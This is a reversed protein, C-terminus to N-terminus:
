YIIIILLGGCFLSLIYMLLIIVMHSLGVSLIMRLPSGSFSKDSFSFFVSLCVFLCLYGSEGRNSSMMSSIQAEAFLCYLSIFLMWMSLSTLSRSSAFSM